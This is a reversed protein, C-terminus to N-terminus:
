VFNNLPPVAFISSTSESSGNSAPSSINTDGGPLLNCDIVNSDPPSCARVARESMKATNKTFGDGMQTKSSTSAGNSSALTVLNQQNNSSSVLIVFVFNMM